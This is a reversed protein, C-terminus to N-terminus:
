TKRKSQHKPDNKMWATNGRSCSPCNSDNPTNRYREKAIAPLNIECHLRERQSFFLSIFRKNFFVVRLKVASNCTNFFHMM